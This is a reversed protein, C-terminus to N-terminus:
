SLHSLVEEHKERKDYGIPYCKTKSHPRTMKPDLKKFKLQMKFKDKELALPTYRHIFGYRDQDVFKTFLTNSDDKSQEIRWEFLNQM